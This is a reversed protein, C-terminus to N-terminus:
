IAPQVIQDTHCIALPHDSTALASCGGIRGAGIRGRRIMASSLPPPVAGSPGSNGDGDWGKGSSTMPGGGGGGGAGSGWGGDWGWVSSKMPGGAAGAGWGGDWGCGWGGDWGCGCCGM